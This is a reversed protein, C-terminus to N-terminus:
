RAAQSQMMQQAEAAGAMVSMIKTKATVYDEGTVAASADTLGQRLGAVVNQFSTLDAKPKAQVIKALMQEAADVAGTADKMLTDVEGKLADKATGADMKAQGFASVAEQFKEMAVKYNRSAAFKKAQGAIEGEAASFAEMAKQMTEPAYMDAGAAKAEEMAARASDILQQPPAACAAVGLAVFLLAASLNRKLMQNELPDGQPLLVKFLALETESGTVKAENTARREGFEVPLVATGGLLSRRESVGERARSM